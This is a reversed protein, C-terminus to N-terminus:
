TSGACSSTGSPWGSGPPASRTSNWGPGSGGSSPREPRFGLPVYERGIGTVLVYLLGHLCAHNGAPPRGEGKWVVPPLAPEFASWIEDPLRRAITQLRM